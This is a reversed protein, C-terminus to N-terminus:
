LPSCCASGVPLFYQHRFFVQVSNGKAVSACRCIADNVTVDGSNQVQLLVFSRQERM